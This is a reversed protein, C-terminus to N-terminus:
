ILLSWCRLVVIILFYIANQIEVVTNEVDFTVELGTITIANTVCSLPEEYKNSIYIYIYIYIDYRYLVTSYQCVRDESYKMNLMMRYSVIRECEYDGKMSACDRDIMMPDMDAAAAVTIM